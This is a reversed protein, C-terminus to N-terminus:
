DYLEGRLEDKIAQSSKKLTGKAIGFMEKLVVSGDKVILLAIKGNVNLHEKEAIDRPIIIGLSNGWKRARTEVIEM